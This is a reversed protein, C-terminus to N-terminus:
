LVGGPSQNQGKFKKVSKLIDIKYFVRPCSGTFMISLCFVEHEQACWETINPLIRTKAASWWISMWRLSVTWIAFGVKIYLPQIFLHIKLSNTTYWVFNGLAKMKSQLFNNHLRLKIFVAKLLNERLFCYATTPYNSLAEPQLFQPQWM